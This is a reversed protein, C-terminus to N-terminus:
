FHASFFVEGGGCGILNGLVEAYGNTIQQAKLIFLFFSFRLRAVTRKFGCHPKQEVRITYAILIM